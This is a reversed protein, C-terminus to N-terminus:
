QSLCRSVFWRTSFDSPFFFKPSNRKSPVINNFRTKLFYSAIGKVPNILSTPLKYQYPYGAKANFYTSSEVV